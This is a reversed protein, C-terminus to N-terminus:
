TAQLFGLLERHSYRNKIQTQLNSSYNVLYANETSMCKMSHFKLNVM